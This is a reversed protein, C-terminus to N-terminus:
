RKVWQPAKRAKVLGVKKREKKRPDRTMFGMAKMSPRYDPDYKELARAIGHRVAGAQGSKGGGNVKCVVDFYGCTRTAIMPGLIDERHSDRPFYDVFEKGNVTVYGMGPNLWVHATASKRGGKGYARGAVDIESVRIPPKSNEIWTRRQAETRREAEYIARDEQDAQRDREMDVDYTPDLVWQSGDRSLDPQRSFSTDYDTYDGDAISIPHTRHRFGKSYPSIKNSSSQFKIKSPTFSSFSNSLPINIKSRSIHRLAHKRILPTVVSM